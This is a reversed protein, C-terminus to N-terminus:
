ETKDLAIPVGIEQCLDLFEQILYNCALITLALFLFDDLYNTVSDPINTRFEILFKLADSFEQFIACSISAGFPLCKDIFDKWEGTTPDQAKMLLWKWCGSRLPILRFASQVDTKGGFIVKIGEKPHIEWMLNDTTARQRLM